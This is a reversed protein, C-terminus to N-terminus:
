LKYKNKMAKMTLIMSFDQNKSKRIRDKSNYYQILFSVQFMWSHKMFQNLKRSRKIKKKKLIKM